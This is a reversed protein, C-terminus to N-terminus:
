ELHALAAACLCHTLPRSQCLRRGLRSSADAHRVPSLHYTVLEHVCEWAPCRPWALGRARVPLLAPDRAARQLLLARPGREAARRVHPPTSPPARRHLMEAADWAWTFAILMWLVYEACYFKSDGSLVGTWSMAEAVLVPGLTSFPVSTWREFCGRWLGRERRAPARDRRRLREQVVLAVEGLAAVFRGAVPANFRSPAGRCMAAGEDAINLARYVCSFVFCLSCGTTVLCKRGFRPLSRRGREAAGAARARAPARRHALHRRARRDRPGPHARRLAARPRRRRELLLLLRRAEVLREVLPTQAAAARSSRSSSRARSRARARRPCRSRTPASCRCAAPPQRRRRVM